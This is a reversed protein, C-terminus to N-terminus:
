RAYIVIKKETFNNEILKQDFCIKNGFFTICSITGFVQYSGLVGCSMVDDDDDFCINGEFNGNSMESGLFEERRLGVRKLTRNKCHSERV